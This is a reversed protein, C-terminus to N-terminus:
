VPVIPNKAGPRRAWNLTAMRVRSAFRFVPQASYPTPLPMVQSESGSASHCSHRALALIRAGRTGAKLRSSVM